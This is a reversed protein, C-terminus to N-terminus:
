LPVNNKGDPRYTAFADRVQQIVPNFDTNVSTDVIIREGITVPELRELKRFDSLVEEYSSGYDLHGPHRKRMLFRKAAREPDCSCHVTVVRNSLRAIWQAPTGSGVPMGPLRWFSVLVAGNSAAAENQLIGDSERSLTRRWLSDGIGKSEFLRELIKDKDIVPLNLAPGILHALTSKGSGPLGSILVFQKQM